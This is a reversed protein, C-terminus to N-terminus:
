VSAQKETLVTSDDPDFFEVAVIVAVCMTVGDAKQRPGPSKRAKFQPPVAPLYVLVPRNFWRYRRLISRRNKSQRDHSSLRGVELDFGM